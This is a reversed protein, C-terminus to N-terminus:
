STTLPTPLNTSPKYPLRVPLTIPVAELAVDASEAVFAVYSPSPFVIDEVYRLNDPPV